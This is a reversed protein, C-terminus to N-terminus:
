LYRVVEALEKRKKTKKKKFGDHPYGLPTIAFVVENAALALAERLLHPNFAAIWCTGVKENEAALILYDMAITLDTEIANYEDSNRVWADDKNGKVILIHPANQFWEGQYCPRVKELMAQSSVVLFQWPQKNAASPAIRGANLIRDLTTKDVTKKPDYDRISERNQILEYYDM